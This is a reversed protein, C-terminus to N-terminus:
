DIVMMMCVVTIVIISFLFVKRAWLTDDIAKFGQATLYIWYLSILGVVILYYVGSFGFLTPSIAALAFIIVYILMSIKTYCLSKKVPLVPINAAMYDKLRYIAIAYSHPMQWLVLILFLIIAGLDFRNNAACYGIVPPVAGSISGIATGFISGRKFYLSYAIVYFLFGVFAVLTAINNTLFFLVAFGFFGLIVGFLLLIKNSVLGLASPRNKTREMLPDIDRDIYNNFVCGSAIVLATGLLTFCLLLFSAHPRILYFGGIATILNGFIIGPKTLSLYHNKLM